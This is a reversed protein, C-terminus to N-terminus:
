LSRLDYFKLSDIEVIELELIQNISMSKKVGDKQYTFRNIDYADTKNIEILGFLYNTGGDASHFELLDKKESKNASIPTIRGHQVESPEIDDYLIYIKKEDYIEHTIICSTMVFVILLHFLSKKM